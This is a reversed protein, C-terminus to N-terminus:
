IVYNQGESTQFIHLKKNPPGQLKRRFENTKFLMKKLFGCNTTLNNILTDKTFIIKM